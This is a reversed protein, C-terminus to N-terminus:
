VSLVGSISLTHIAGALRGSFKVDPLHRAARDVTSIDAVKPASATPAPIGGQDPELGNGPDLGGAAVGAKLAGLIENIVIDVGLDTYPIKPLNVLRSFVRIQIESRLWDIFQTIDLFEGSGSTGRATMPVGAVTTYTNGNKDEVAAVDGGSLADVTVGGLRKFMWTYSGPQFPFRGGMWAAGAYSQTDNGNYIVGTRAYGAAMIDSMVDTSTGSDLCLTDCTHPVFLRQNAEVWEAAEGIEDESNSDLQLGYWDSDAVLLAALDTAVGPDSTTDQLEFNSSWNRLRILVGAGATATVTITDTAVSTDVGTVADILSEIASAVSSTTASSPVTYTIDDDEVKIDYVDGEIASLCKLTMEHTPPLSRKWVKVSAPRTKQSFIASVCKYAPDTTAFGDDTMETLSKYLVTNNGPFTSPVKSALVAITGYGPRTPSTTDAIITVSVLDDLSM